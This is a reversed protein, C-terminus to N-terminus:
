GGVEVIADGRPGFGRLEVHSHPLRAVPSCSRAFPVSACAPSSGTCSRHPVLGRFPFGPRPLPIFCARLVPPPTFRRSTSFVQPRFVAPFPFVRSGHVGGAVGRIPCSGWPLGCDSLAACSPRRVSESSSVVCSPIFRVRSPWPVTSDLFRRRPRFRRRHRVRPFGIIRPVTRCVIGQLSIFRMPPVRPARL